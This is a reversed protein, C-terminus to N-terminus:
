SYKSLKVELFNQNITFLKFHEYTSIKYVNMEKYMEICNRDTIEDYIFM